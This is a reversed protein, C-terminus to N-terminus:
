KLHQYVYKLAHEADELILQENVDQAHYVGYKPYEVVILQIKCFWSIYQALKYASSLDEGNGHFFLM